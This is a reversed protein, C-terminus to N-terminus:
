RRTRALRRMRSAPMGKPVGDAPSQGCPQGRHEFGDVAGVRDVPEVLVLSDAFGDGVLCPPEGHEGGAQEVGFGLSPAEGGQEGERLRAGGSRVPM